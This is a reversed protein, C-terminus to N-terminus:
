VAHDERINDSPARERKALFLFPLAGLQFFSAALYSTSYSWIDAAKGLLPQIVIGGSSGMLSDFSLITAREKSPIVGNIFTQRIPTLASFILGWLFILALVLWFNKVMSVLVLIVGTFVM